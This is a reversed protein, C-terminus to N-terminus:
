ILPISIKDFSYIVCFFNYVSLSFLRSFKFKWYYKSVFLQDRIQLHFGKKPLLDTRYLKLFNKKKKPNINQQIIYVNSHISKLKHPYQRIFKLFVIPYRLTHNMENIPSKHLIVSIIYLDLKQVTDGFCYYCNYCIKGITFACYCLVM